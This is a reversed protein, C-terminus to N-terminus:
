RWLSFMQFALLIILKSHYPHTLQLYQTKSPLHVLNQPLSDTKAAVSPTAGNKWAGCNSMMKSTILMYKSYPLQIQIIELFRLM